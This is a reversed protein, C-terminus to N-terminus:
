PYIHRGKPARLLQSQLLIGARKTITITAPKTICLLPELPKTITGPGIPTTGGRAKPAGIPAITAESGPRKAGQESRESNRRM